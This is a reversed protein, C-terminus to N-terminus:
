ALCQHNETDQVIAVPYHAPVSLLENSLSLLRWGSEQPLVLNPYEPAFVHVSEQAEKRGVLVVEQDLIAVLEDTISGVIRQNRVSLWVGHDIIGACIRGSEIVVLYIREQSLISHWYDYVSALYPEVSRLKCRTHLALEELKTMLALPIAACIAGTRPDWESVSLVWSDARDAYIERIRFTAYAKVEEPTTIEEQPPLTIYRVFQNSLTVELSSGAHRSLQQELKQLAPQWVPIGSEPPCCETIRADQVPKLGRGTRVLDIRDSALFVEVRDSWSPLM